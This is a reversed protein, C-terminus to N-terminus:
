RMAGRSRAAARRQHRVRVIVTARRGHTTARLVVRKTTRSVKVHATFHSGKKWTAKTKKWGKATKRQLTLSTTAPLVTGSVTASTGGTTTAVVGVIQLPAGPTSPAPTPTPSTAAPTTTVPAVVPAPPAVLAAGALLVACPSTAPLGYDHSAADAFLPDAVLNQLVSFGGSGTDITKTGSLCNDRVVNGTGAPTGTPYWSEVDARLTANTIVNNAVLNGSSTYGDDGSFLIGEGNSDIVNGSIVSDQASPYLQIGRDANDYIVNGVIQAGESHSVYIGHDHNTAPLRGCDHIRNDSIVTHDAVPDDGWGVAGLIFCIGTHQNTVDNGSFTVDDAHITPSPLNSANRGDLALDSVTVGDAGEPVFLRGRLTATEGPWSTLTVGATRITVDEAYTGARLCGTEGSHLSAVLAGATAFPADATGAASDSGTPAAVRDCTSASAMPAALALALGVALAVHAPAIRAM